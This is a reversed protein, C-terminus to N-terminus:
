VKDFSLIIDLILHSPNYKKWYLGDKYQTLSLQLYKSVQRLLCKVSELFYNLMWVQQLLLYVILILKKKKKTLDLLIRLYWHAVVFNLNQEYFKSNINEWIKQRYSERSMKIQIKLWNIIYVSPYLSLEDM